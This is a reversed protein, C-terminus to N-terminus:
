SITVFFPSGHALVPPEPIVADGEVTLSYWHEGPEPEDTLEVTASRGDLEQWPLIEGDRILCIRRLGLSGAVWARIRVTGDAEVESGMPKGDMEAWLAVKGNAMGVTRRERIAEL